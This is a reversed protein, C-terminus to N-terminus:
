HVEQEVGFLVKTGSPVSSGAVDGLCRKEKEDYVIIIPFSADNVRFFVLAAPHGPFETGWWRYLTVVRWVIEEELPIHQMVASVSAPDAERTLEDVQIKAEVTREEKPGTKKGSKILSVLRDSPSFVDHHSNILSGHGDIPRLGSEFEILM